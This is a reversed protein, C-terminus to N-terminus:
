LALTIELSFLNPPVTDDTDTEATEGLMRLICGYFSCTVILPLDASQLIVGM